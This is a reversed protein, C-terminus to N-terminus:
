GVSEFIGQKSVILIFREVTDPLKLSVKAVMDGAAKVDDPNTERDLKLLAAKEFPLDNDLGGNRYEARFFMRLSQLARQRTEANHIAFIIWDYSEQLVHEYYSLQERQHKWKWEPDSSPIQDGWIVFNGQKQVIVAIGRPNLLEEDLPRDETPLKVISPLTAETGAEAKHYGLNDVAIRAERGHVEGTRSTLKLRGDGGNVPDPVYAYSPFIVVEYPNRGITENVYADAEPDTTISSPIEIRYQHNRAEAYAVGAKQVATATVGPTALKVLGMNRGMVRNFLSTNPDWAQIYNTDLVGANGDRGGAFECPAVVMFADAPAGETTLTSGDAATLSKHDNDVIRYKVRKNNAKDPYVYGNILADVEFPKYNIVLTDTAVLATVGATATFPPVWKNKTAGGAGTPPSFLTGLTVTGLAGFVDSVAAGATPSSMTITIKQRVMADTTTGLTLTPNGHAVPSNITFDHIIATLLTTTVTDILGYHNAPRIDATIAGSWLSVAFIEYNATDNNIVNVWYRRDAPDMSLDTYKSVLAGDVMVYLSFLNDPDSDGDRIEVSLAKSENERVIYYRLDTNTGANLDDLMTQDSAVTIVGLATNGIIPYKKAANVGGSLQIYGDKWEDKKHGTTDETDLTTNTLKGIASLDDTYRKLKGGWRGGNAAKLTGVPTPLTARRALLTYEAQAETGDTVRVALVGGAGSATKFSDYIADPCLSDDIYSGIRRKALDSTNLYILKGVPGKELIGAYGRWGLAGPTIPKDGSQERIQTGAGRVPGFVRTTM